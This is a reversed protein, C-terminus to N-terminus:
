PTVVEVEWSAALGWKDLINIEYYRDAEVTFDDPMLVDAPLALTAPTSGSQFRITVEGTAPVSSVTLSSVEGATYITHDTAAISPTSGTVAQRTWIPEYRTDAYGLTVAEDDEDPAALGALRVTNSQDGELRLISHNALSTLTATIEDGDNGAVSDDMVGLSVNAVPNTAPLVADSAPSGINARAQAKETSSLVQSTSYMVAGTLVADSSAAGINQRAQLKQADTFSQASNVRVAVNNLAMISDMATGVSATSAADINTRAQTQQATNFSQATDARVANTEIASSAAGINTRAQAQQTSNFSQSTDARVANTEIATLRTGLGAVTTGLSIIQSSAAAGINARGQAQQTSNLDQELDFRVSGEAAREAEELRSEYGAVTEAAEEADEAAEAADDAAKKVKELIWDANLRHFDTYPFLSNFIGM